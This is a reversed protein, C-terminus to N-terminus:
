ANSGSREAGPASMLVTYFWDGEVENIQGAELSIALKFM